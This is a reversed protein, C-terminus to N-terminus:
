VFLGGGFRVGDEVKTRKAGLGNIGKRGVLPTHGSFNRSNTATM